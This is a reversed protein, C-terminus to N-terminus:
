TSRRESPLIEFRIKNSVLPNYTRNCQAFLEASLEGSPAETYRCFTELSARVQATYWGAAGELRYYDRVDKMLYINEADPAIIEVPVIFSAAPGTLHRRNSSRNPTSRPWRCATPISSPSGCISTRISFDGASSWRSAQPRFYRDKRQIGEGSGSRHTRNTSPGTPCWISRSRRNAAHRRFCCCLCLVLWVPTPRHISQGNAM